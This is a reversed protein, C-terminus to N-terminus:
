KEMSLKHKKRHKNKRHDHSPAGLSIYTGRIKVKCSMKENLVSKQTEVV